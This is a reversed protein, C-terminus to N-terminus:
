ANAKKTIRITALERVPARVAVLTIFTLYLDTMAALGWLRDTLYIPSVINAGAIVMVTAVSLGASAARRRPIGARTM